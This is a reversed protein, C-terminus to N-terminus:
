RGLGCVGEAACGLAACRQEWLKRHETLLETTYPDLAVKRRQGTKTEKEKIGAKTQANSRHIWLVARDADVHRWRLASVEGRRSGTIMTLWLLLGWDPDTWAANLLTAAEEASPPDPETRNSSPAEAMAAKNVGLHQWRVARELAGRIIYHIKRTTSSSLPRCIHGAPPRGSCLERCRHLRAYFRELLEADLKSALTNGLTPLIYLRILDDYRERTTDQLEAVDLWQTIAHRVTIATKPHRDEDVQGQLRTLAQEAGAYTAATERLYREKGTLPDTGTYVIAQFSGSPLTRIHGRPRRRRSPM